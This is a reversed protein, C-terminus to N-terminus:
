ASASLLAFSMVRPDRPGARIARGCAGLLAIVLGVFALIGFIGLEALLLMYLSHPTLLQVQQFSTGAGGVDSKDSFALGAYQNKYDPFEKPGVGTFPHDEWMGFAAKWLEYRDRVSPDPHHLTKALSDLRERAVSKRGQVAVGIGLVVFSAVLIAVGRRWDVILLLAIVAGAAALWSGRSLSMLLPLTLFAAAVLGLRRRRQNEGKSLSWAVGVVIGYAVVKSMAIVDYAGFTGVARVNKSGISAGTGTLFQYVGVTGELLALGLMSKMILVLDRRERIALYSCLPILVFIEVYRVIGGIAGNASASFLASVVIAFAMAVLPLVVWSKASETDTRM